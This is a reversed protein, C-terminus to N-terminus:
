GGGYLSVGNLTGDPEMMGKMTAKKGAMPRVKDQDQNGINHVRGHSDIFVVPGTNESCAQNCTAAGSSQDVCASNCVWGTMEVPKGKTNDQTNNQAFVLIALCFISFLLLAIRRM